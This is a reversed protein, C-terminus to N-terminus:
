GRHTRSLNDYYTSVKREQENTLSVDTNHTPAGLPVAALYESHIARLSDDVGELEFHGEASGILLRQRLHEDGPEAIRQVM